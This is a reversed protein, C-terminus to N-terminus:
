PDPTVDDYRDGAVPRHRQSGRGPRRRSRRRRVQVVYGIFVVSVVVWVVLIGLAVNAVIAWVGGEGVRSTSTTAFPVPTGDLPVVWSLSGDEATSTTSDVTGPLSASLVVAVAQNPALSAEAIAAAYPTAGVAALLDPDAFAALGADVRGAGDLTYTVADASEVRDLRVGQFPGNAGNMTALLATAEAATAFPHEIVVRLGGDETATPGGVEWGAAILDDAQFDEALGPAAAVVDSDAVATVTITGSGDGDMAVDVTVDVQCASLAVVAALGLLTTVARRLVPDRHECVAAISGRSASTM